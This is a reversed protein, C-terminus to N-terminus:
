TYFDIATEREVEVGGMKEAGRLGARSVIRPRAKTQM